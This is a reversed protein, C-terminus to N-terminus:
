EPQGDSEEDFLDITIGHRAYEEAFRKKMEPACHAAADKRTPFRGHQQRFKMQYYLSYRNHPMAPDHDVACVPCAGPKPPALMVQEFPIERGNITPDSM